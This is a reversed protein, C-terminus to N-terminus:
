GAVVEASAAATTPRRSKEGPRRRGTSAAQHARVVTSDVHLESLDPGGLAEALAAWRGAKARRDFRRWTSNWNGYRPPLDRWAAGTRLVWLVANLFLRNDAATRGRDGAMGVLLPEIAARQEYSLKHRGAM